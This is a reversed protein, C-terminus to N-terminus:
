CRQILHAFKLIEKVQLVIQGPQFITLTVKCFAWNLLAVMSSIQGEFDTQSFDPKSAIGREINDTIDVMLNERSDQLDLFRAQISVERVVQIDTKKMTMVDALQLNLKTWETKIKSYDPKPTALFRKITALNQTAKAGGTAFAQVVNLEKAITATPQLEEKFTKKVDAQAKTVAEQVQSQTVTTEPSVPQKKKDTPAPPTAAPKKFLDMIRGIIPFATDFASSVITGITKGTSQAKQEATTTAAPAQEKAVCSPGALLLCILVISFYKM